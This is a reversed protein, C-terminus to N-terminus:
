AIRARVVLVPPIESIRRGWQGAKSLAGKTFSPEEIGDVVFGARFLAGLLISLPREFYDQLVPQGLIAEGKGRFSTLYGHVKVGSVKAPRGRLKVTERYFGARSSNFCPHCVSFVFRGNKRLLDGLSGFLPGIEAMDMLAMNCVAADFCHRGLSLMQRRSTADVVRYRIGRNIPDPNAKAVEILGRSFDCAVVRAGKRAMARAFLGNGCALDLVREGQKLDLLRWTAPAVLEKHWRNGEGMRENWFEANREWAKRSARAAGRFEGARLADRKM